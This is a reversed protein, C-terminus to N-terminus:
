LRGGKWRVRGLAGDGFTDARGIVAGIIRELGRSKREPGSAGSSFFRLQVPAFFPFPRPPSVPILFVRTSSSTMRSLIHNSTVRVIAHHLTSRNSDIDMNQLTPM